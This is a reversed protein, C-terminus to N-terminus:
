HNQQYLVTLVVVVHSIILVRGTQKKAEGYRIISDCMLMCADDDVVNETRTSKNEKLISLVTVFGDRVQWYAYGGYWVTGGDDMDDDDNMETTTTVVVMMIM